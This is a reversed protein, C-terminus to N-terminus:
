PAAIRVGRAELGARVRRALEAAGETDGHICITDAELPLCTGDIAVMAHKEIVMMVRDVVRDPDTVLADPRDRPRLHGDSEYARDAFAEAAVRLGAERGAEVLRSGALGFLVLRSDALAVARAIARAASEDWAARNYLAGHPKVHALQMGEAVALGALAGIQYLVVDTIEDAALAMDRRGFGALDPFGPHAGVSVGRAKALRLTKRMASPDGAHFGCAINASSISPMIAEDRGMTWPGFSEGLDSNLDIRV